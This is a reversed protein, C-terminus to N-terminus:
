LGPVLGPTQPRMTLRTGHHVPIWRWLRPFLMYTVHQVNCGCGRGEVIRKREREGEHSDIVCHWPALRTIDSNDHSFAHGFKIM